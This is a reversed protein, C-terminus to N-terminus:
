FGASVLLDFSGIVPSFFEGRNIALPMGEIKEYFVYMEMIFEDVGKSGRPFLYINELDNEGFSTLIEEIQEYEFGKITLLLTLQDRTWAQTAM